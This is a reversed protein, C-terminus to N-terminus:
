RTFETYGKYDMVNQKSEPDSACQKAFEDLAGKYDAADLPKGREKGVVLYQCEPLQERAEVDTKTAIGLGTRVLSEPYLVQSLFYIKGAEMTIKETEIDDGNYACMIYHEGPEVETIYYSKKRTQGIWTNDIYNDTAMFAGYSVIRMFVLVAKGEVAAITPTEDSKEMYVKQKAAVSLCALLVVLAVSAARKM